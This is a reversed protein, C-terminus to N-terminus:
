TSTDSPGPGRCPRCRRRRPWPSPRHAERDRLLHDILLAAADKAPLRGGARRGRAAGAAGAPTASSGVQQCRRVHRRREADGLRVDHGADLGAVDLGLLDAAGIADRARRQVLEELM